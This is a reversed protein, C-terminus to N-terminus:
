MPGGTESGDARGEGSSDPSPSSTELPSSESGGAGGGSVKESEEIDSLTASSTAEADHAPTVEGETSAKPDKTEEM